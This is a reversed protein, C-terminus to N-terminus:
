SSIKGNKVKWNRRGFVPNSSGLQVAFGHLMNEHNINM